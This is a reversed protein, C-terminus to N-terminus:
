KENKVEGSKGKASANSKAKKIKLIAFQVIDGVEIDCLQCVEDKIYVAKNTNDDKGRVVAVFSVSSDVVTESM